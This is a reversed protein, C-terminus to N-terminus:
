RLYKESGEDKRPSPGAFDAPVIECKVSIEFVVAANCPHPQQKYRRILGRNDPL